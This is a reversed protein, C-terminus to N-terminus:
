PENYKLPRPPPLNPYPSKLHEPIETKYFFLNIDFKQAQPDELTYTKLQNPDSILRDREWLGEKVGEEAKSFANGYGYGWAFSERWWGVHYTGDCFIWRGFGNLCGNVFQGEAVGFDTIVTKGFGNHRQGIWWKILKKSGTEM